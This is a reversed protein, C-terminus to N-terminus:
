SWGPWTRMPKPRALMGSARPIRPALRAAAAFHYCDPLLGNGNQQHGYEGRRIRPRSNLFRRCARSLGARALATRAAAANRPTVDNAAGAVAPGAGSLRAGCMASVRQPWPIEATVIVGAGPNSGSVAVNACSSALPRGGRGRPPVSRAMQFLNTVLPVRCEAPQLKVIMFPRRDWRGPRRGAGPAGPRGAGSIAAGSLAAGSMVVPWTDGM